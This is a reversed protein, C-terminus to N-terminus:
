YQIGSVVLTFPEASAPTYTGLLTIVIYIPSTGTVYAYPLDLNSKCYADGTVVNSVDSSASLQVYGITRKWEDDTIAIAANDEWGAAAPQTDFFNVQFSAGTQDQDGKYLTVAKIVGGTDLSTALGSLAFTAATPTTANDSLADGISYQTTNAPRTFDVRRVWPIPISAM